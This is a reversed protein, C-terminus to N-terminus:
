TRVFRAYSGTKPQVTLPMRKVAVPYTLADLLRWPLPYPTPVKLCVDLFILTAGALWRAAELM